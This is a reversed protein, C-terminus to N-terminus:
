WEAGKACRAAACRWSASARCSWGSRRAQCRAAAASCGSSCTAESSSAVALSLVDASLRKAATEFSLRTRTSEEFFLSAVVRGKLAPVKKITRQNVEVFLEATDLVELIAVDSLEDLTLLNRGRISNIM